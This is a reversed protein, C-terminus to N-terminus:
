KKKKEKSRRSLIFIQNVFCKYTYIYAYSYSIAMGMFISM